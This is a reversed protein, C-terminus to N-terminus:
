RARRPIGCSLAFGAAALGGVAVILSGIMLGLVTVAMALLFAVWAALPRRRPRPAATFPRVFEPDEARLRAEIDALTRREADSLM